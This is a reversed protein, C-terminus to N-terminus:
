VGLVLAFIWANRPSVRGTAVPRQQTRAMLADTRREVIHNVTAASSSLLAIGLTALFWLGLPLTGPSALYMGIWATFLMLLVVRPKCLILYDRWSPVPLIAAHDCCGSHSHKTM